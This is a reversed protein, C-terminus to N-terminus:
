SSEQTLKKFTNFSEEGVDNKSIICQIIGFGDRITLFGIKGSSRSNYVWGNLQIEKDINKSIENIRIIKM